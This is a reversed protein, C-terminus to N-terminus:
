RETCKVTGQGLSDGRVIADALAKDIGNREIKSTNIWKIYLYRKCYLFM